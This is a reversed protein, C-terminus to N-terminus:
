TGPTRRAAAGKHDTAFEDDIVPRTQHLALVHIQLLLQRPHHFTLRSMLQPRRRSKVM